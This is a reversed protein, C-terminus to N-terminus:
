GRTRTRMHILTTHASAHPPTLLFAHTRQPTRPDTPASSRMPARAATNTLARTHAHTSMRAAEPPHPLVAASASGSGGSATSSQTAPKGLAYDVGSDEAQTREVVDSGAGSARVAALPLSAAVSAVNPTTTPASVGDAIASPIVPVPELTSASSGVASRSPSRAPVQPASARSSSTPTVPKPPASPTTGSASTLLEAASHPNCLHTNCCIDYVDSTQALCRM